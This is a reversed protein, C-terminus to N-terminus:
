YDEMLGQRANEREKKILERNHKAEKCKDFFWTSTIMVFNTMVPITGYLLLDDM